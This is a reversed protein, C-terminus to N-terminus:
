LLGKHSKLLPPTFLFLLIVVILYSFFNIYWFYHVGVNRGAALPLARVGSPGIICLMRQVVSWDPDIPCSFSESGVFILFVLCLFMDTNPLVKIILFFNCIM